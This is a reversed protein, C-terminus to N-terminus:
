WSIYESFSVKAGQVIVKGDPTAVTILYEFTGGGIMKGPDPEPGFTKVLRVFADGLEKAREKSTAYDVIIALSLRNGNPAVAADQVDPQDKIVQIALAKQQETLEPAPAPTACSVPVLLMVLILGIILKKKM